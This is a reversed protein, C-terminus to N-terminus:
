APTRGFFHPFMRHIKKEAKAYQRASYRKMRRRTEAEIADDAAAGIAYLKDRRALMEAESKGVAIVNFRTYKNTGLEGDPARSIGLYGKPSVHHVQHIVFIEGPRIHDWGGGRSCFQALHDEMSKDDHLGFPQDFALVWQGPKIPILATM